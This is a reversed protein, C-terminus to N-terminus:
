APIGTMLRIPFRPAKKEPRPWAPRPTTQGEAPGPLREPVRAPNTSSTM